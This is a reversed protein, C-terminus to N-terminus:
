LFVGFWSNRPRAGKTVGTKVRNAYNIVQYLGWDEMIYVHVNHDCDRETEEFKETWWTRVNEQNIIMLEEEELVFISVYDDPNIPFQKLFFRWSGFEGTAM